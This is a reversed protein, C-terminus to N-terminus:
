RGVVYIRNGGSAVAAPIAILGGVLGSIPDRGPGATRLTNGALLRNGILQVVEPSEAFKSHNLNGPDNVKTLDIVVVGLAALSEADEDGVRNVGGAIRRSFALAKDDESILVYFRREDKPFVSIQERFLDTDIDPSALIVNRLRKNKDFRGEIKAQKMAEVTLLNGMSHAIIDFGEAQTQGLLRATKILHNRAHLASNLDYVYDFVRGRSAWSFLVPVGTYGSDEVFQAIRLVASAMTTNYGHVFAMVTRDGTPRTALASNVAEVFQRDNDYIHPNLVTFDRRPDPPLTKPRETQGSVHAPPVSVTVRALSIHESREGSYMIAPDADSARTTAIFIDHKRADAITAAPVRPNDVGIIADPAGACGPVFAIAAILAVTTVAGRMWEVLTSM